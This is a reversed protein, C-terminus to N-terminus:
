IYCNKPYRHEPMQLLNCWYKICKVHYTICLPLRGCEGLAVSNNVSSNVGLFQKCFQIQVQEIVQAYEFGLIEARYTLIPKVMAYFFKFYETQSFYGFERRYNNISYIAKRAQASLKEKAPTWSLKLHPYLEWISTYLHSMLLMKMWNWREYHRLPGGNRFVIIETKKLNVSMVTNYDSIYNLQLQLNNATEVCNAVDDAFLLSIIDPIEKTIFIGRNCTEKLHQSLDNIYLSFIITSSIDGQRTGINCRFPQTLKGDVWVYAKICSYM